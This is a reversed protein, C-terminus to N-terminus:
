DNAPTGPDRKPLPQLEAQAIGPSIDNMATSPPPCSVAYCEPRVVVALFGLGLIGGATCAALVGAIGLPWSRWLAGAPLLLVAIAAFPLALLLFAKIPNYRLITEIIIQFARLTDRVQRVKSRGGLRKHYEIPVYHVYMGTLLYVLTITTTFSFGSSISPFFPLAQSRRFVRFGSNVDPIERGTTYEALIKFCRRGMLKLLNGRYAIGTRCGVVMHYRQVHEILEPLREVPYTGDADTIAILDHAASAIGDKLSRGYGMNDPHSLVTAGHEKATAATRDCSGDDVVLIEHPMGREALTKGIRDVVDGIEGEENFAPIIVSVAEVM